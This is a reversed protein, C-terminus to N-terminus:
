QYNAILQLPVPMQQVRKALTDSLILRTQHLSNGFTRAHLGPFQPARLPYRVAEKTGTPEANSRPQRVGPSPPFKDPPRGLLM